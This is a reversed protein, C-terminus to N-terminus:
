AAVRKEREAARQRRVIGGVLGLLGIGLLSVTGPEPVVLGERFALDNLPLPNGLSIARGGAYTDENTIQPLFNFM